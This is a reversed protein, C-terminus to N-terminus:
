ETSRANAERMKDEAFLTMADETSTSHVGQGRNSGEITACYRQVWLARCLGLVAGQGRKLTITGRRSRRYCQIVFSHLGKHNM